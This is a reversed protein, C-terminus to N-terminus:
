VVVVYSEGKWQAEVPVVFDQLPPMVDVAVYKAIIAEMRGNQKITKIV